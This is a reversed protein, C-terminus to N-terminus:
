FTCSRGTITWEDDRPAARKRNSQCSFTHHTCRKRIDEIVYSRGLHGDQGKTRRGGQLLVEVHIDFSAHRISDIKSQLVIEDLRFINEMHELKEQMPMHTFIKRKVFLAVLRQIQKGHPTDVIRVDSQHLVAENWVHSERNLIKMVLGDRVADITKAHAESQFSVEPPCEYFFQRLSPVSRNWIRHNIEQFRNLFLFPSLFARHRHLVVPSEQTRHLELHYIEIYIRRFYILQRM